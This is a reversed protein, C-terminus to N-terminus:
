PYLRCTPLPIADVGRAQEEDQNWAFYVPWDSPEIARPRVRKGQWISHHSNM